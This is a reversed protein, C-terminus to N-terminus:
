AAEEASCDIGAYTFKEYLTTNVYTKREELMRNLSVLIQAFSPREYPKERWCQRMLDYVEDDCNLPKELRYGQPLKEYLEACTMGCYPTGGLAFNLMTKKVYVEQGRSLGFDAIKAVYNEGVLINRAALDRHIFQKQSLYDMGRAVDAAFHLLQQSSLTSATSNAIAFAPDTELVRSKRLFDLLNGHPAYEIALYLYGRHECAGLLNIINPHHGLKCLVELEGAFDRHDDKSAYEKMRKIAADMRLGDKKIRAKLVQGFNGEGIVDQFKIDNWELVPYITHDPSNKAKRSLTLTGSNFQVAPEERVVNQFAQAMRRQFNARKLQLMILFALLITVCTMGASGLIAILLMKGGKSEYRAKAEPLTKLEFSTNPNSLGINNQANIQVQYVTNPELGKLHYQTISTNKIIIDIHNYEAKGYIKYSIIISSISHGEAATWSILSSTDTTNSFRINYPAPPISDSFTWAYLYNSWEGQSRTNVRVRCMYQKRPELDKIILTSMNGPVQTIVSSEDGNDNVSKREVEVRIDDETRLTLPHWSLNLSTMSKPFLTLGEPPPLGLAATTFSAQPGPHGEGGEGQRSLQVCFQYETKPELNDLRKTTGKVEVFMWSQYHKAPKYLLKTSVVPGDGLYSAANIDIILFNHGSDTLRPPYQPVPPVKVTVQFPKEAMGAVTQVTCVWTGTDRPQIRNITFMAESRNSTFIRAPRLVTGDQKLLKFEESKPLPMGTAICFPKFEVGSNLEIPDLLNEIHPSLDASGKDCELGMWGTACSCGYPDPLCFMYNRCGYNEKCSEECTKGFTNAGCANKYIVADEEKSAMRIFSINVHEGKNATVTLAVPYFSAQLPMKMTHIRKVEDKLKGECYYAGITERAQERKWVVTKAAARKSDENVELPERHQNTVDEQDRDIIISERSRWKSTICILSTESNGVLPFSNILILDLAAEVKGSMQLPNGKGEEGTEQEGNRGTKNQQLFCVEEEILVTFSNSEIKFFLICEKMMFNNQEHHQWKRELNTLQSHTENEQLERKLMEYETNLHEMVKKFSHSRKTLKGKDDQLRKEKEEGSAKLAPLNSYVELDAKAQEIKEKLSTLEGVMKGELLEMKQLDMQLKQSETVLNKATSQSKQMENSKFTLDEQMIKLEQNTVSSIQKMHNLNQTNGIVIILVHRSSHELLAVINAEIQAKREFEQNKVEEFTELFNDISEERKKLEKYKSNEEGQHNEVDMDLQQIVKKFHNTKEKVETLQREMSAIKQSDDKVARLSEEKVNLVDLEQQQVVLEQSLKENTTKMEMYKAQNEQSMDKMIDDAVVKERETDEEIAQILKETVQRETFIKDMSQADQDNQVKLMNCDRIVEAMDISTNLIDVVMNFDALQGQFEKIEGALAEARKEYSLYVSKEQKYMEVEEQLRNIETTLENTKSRLVGLYYTKDMIQRQPGKVATKIGSLGQQTVPRDAIKIQSSLVGGTTASGGRSGPRATSPPMKSSSNM